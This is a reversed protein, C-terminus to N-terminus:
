SPLEIGTVRRYVTLAFSDTMGSVVDTAALLQAYVGEALRHQPPILELLKDDSKRRKKGSALLAPVFRELLGSLVQFGAAEVQVVAPASYIYKMCTSKIAKMAGAHPTEKILETEFTGRMIEQYNERFVQVAAEILRGISRARLYEVRNRDDDLGKYRSDTNPDGKPFAIDSLLRETQEFPVCKLRCGDELDVVHYCIDDAAEVLFALPHRCWVDRRKEILGTSRAVARFLPLDHAVFGFKKESVRKSEELGKVFSRRPYKTFTALTGHTLQLGGRNQPNQLRTLVRFGQANGEFKLFDERERKSLRRVFTLGAQQFWERIADEGSHGFPPNGIDHALCAAAVVDGFDSRATPASHEKTSVVEAALTGLSRGVSAVELSHTLRTRVYDSKALPFVQTKDQLRRFASSYIIRDCDRQFQSRVDPEPPDRDRGLRSGSLLKAWEMRRQAEKM